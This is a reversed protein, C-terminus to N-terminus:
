RELIETLGMMRLTQGIRDPVDVLRMSGGGAACRKKLTVLAAVGASDMFQLRALNVVVARGGGCSEGVAAQLEPVTALDLEGVVDISTITPGEDVIVELIVNAGQGGTTRSGLGARGGM